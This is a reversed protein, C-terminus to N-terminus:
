FLSTNIRIVTVHYGLYPILYYVLHCQKLLSDLRDASLDLGYVFRCRYITCVFHRFLTNTCDFVNTEQEPFM